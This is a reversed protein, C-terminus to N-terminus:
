ELQLQDLARELVAEGAVIRHEIVLPEVAARSDASMRVFDKETTILRAAGKEQARKKFREVTEPDLPAHDRFLERHVITAGLAEITEEFRRPRAIAAILAVPHAAISQPPSGGLATPVVEIEMKPVRELGALVAVDARSRVGRNLVLLGARSLAEKPERLPGLPLLRGTGLPREADLMVVDLDRALRLHQFGDDLILVEAGLERIALIAARARSRAVVVAAQTKQAILIPEDGAEEASMGSTVVFAEGRSSARGGYGRSLVVVKRRRALLRDALLLVFPTKGSGGVALNGVSIVPRDVKITRLIGTRYAAGRLRVAAGFVSSSLALLPKAWGPPDTEGPEFPRDTAEAM